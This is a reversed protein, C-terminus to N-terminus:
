LRPAWNLRNEVNGGPGIQAAVVAPGLAPEAERLASGEVLELALGARQAVATEAAMRQADDATFAPYLMGTERYEVDM